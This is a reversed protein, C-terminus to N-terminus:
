FTAELALAVKELENESFVLLKEGRLVAAAVGIGPVLRKEFSGDYIFNSACSPSKEKLIAIKIAHRRVLELALLAGEIFFQTVDGGRSTKLWARQELVDWGDGNVIEASPRPTNLGGAVEPCFPVLRGQAAWKEILFHSIKKQKGDYRVIEGM